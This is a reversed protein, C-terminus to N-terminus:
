SAAGETAVAKKGAKKRIHEDIYKIGKGKYPEPKRSARIQSAFEGVAQKDIGSVTIINKDIKVEIGEPIEFEVPHSYGLNLVLKKGSVSAHYGVGNIELKKEFGDCVGKIMNAIIAATTGWLSKTEKNTTKEDKVVVLVQNDKIEIKMQPDFKFSLNGKSGKCNIKGEEIKIEVGAPLDIPRRGIRSM